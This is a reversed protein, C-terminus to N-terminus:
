DRHRRATPWAVPDVPRVDLDPRDRRNGRRRRCSGLRSAVHSVEEEVAEGANETEADEEAFQRVQDSSDEAHQAPEDVHRAEPAEYQIRGVAIRRRYFEPSSCTRPPQTQFKHPRSQKTTRNLFPPLNLIPVPSASLKARNM